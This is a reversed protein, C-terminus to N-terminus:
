LWQYRTKLDNHQSFPLIKDHQMRGVVIGSHIGIAKAFTKIQQKTQLTPLKKANQPDILLDVSFKDAEDELKKNITFDKKSELFLQKKHKLIHAIEHFFAFWLNDNTKYRLSLMLLAKNTTIWKTAGSMPCNKPAPVFVVAIGCNACIEQMALIFDKPKDLITLAKLNQLSALLKAEDFAKCNIKVAEIEGKRLWTQIAMNDINFKKYAKFAVQFGREQNNSEISSVGYFKLCEIIQESKDAMKEVWGFKIMDKLPIEKLWEQQENLTIREQEKALAERYINEMNMWFRASNNLVKELRMATDQTISAEGKLLKYIHKESYGMREAFNVQSLGLDKIAQLISTGPPLLHLWDPAFKYTNTGM